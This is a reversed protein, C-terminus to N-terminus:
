HRQVRDALASETLVGSTRGIWYSLGRSTMRIAQRVHTQVTCPSSQWRRSSWCANRCSAYVSTHVLDLNVMWTTRIVIFRGSLISSARM